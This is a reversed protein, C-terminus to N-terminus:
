KHMEPGSAFYGKAGEHFVRGIGPLNRDYFFEAIRWRREGWRSDLVSYALSVRWPESDRPPYEVLRFVEGAPVDHYGSDGHPIPGFYVPWGAETKREIHRAYRLTRSNTNTAVFVALPRDAYSANTFGVFTITLPKDKSRTAMMALVAIVVIAVFLLGWKLIRRM